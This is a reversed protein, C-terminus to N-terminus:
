EVVKVSFKVKANNLATGDDKFCEVLLLGDYDGSKLVDDLEIEYYGKGPEIGGASQWSQEDNIFLTMRFLCNNGEPNKFNVQQIKQNATFTLSDFGPIKISNTEQKEGNPLKQDGDWNQANEDVPLLIKDDSRGFRFFIIFGFLLLLLVIVFINRKKM